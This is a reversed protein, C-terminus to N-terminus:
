SLNHDQFHQERPECCQSVEAKQKEAAKKVCGSPWRWQVLCNAAAQCSLHRPQCRNGAGTGVLLWRLLQPCFTCDTVSKDKIVSYLIFRYVGNLSVCPIYRVITATLILDIGEFVDLLFRGPSMAVPALQVTLRQQFKPFRGGGRECELAAPDSAAEARPPPRRFGEGRPLDGPPPSITVDLFGREAAASRPCCRAPTATTGAYGDGSHAGRLARREGMDEPAGEHVGAEVRGHLDQVAAQQPHVVAARHSARPRPATRAGPRGPATLLRSGTRDLRPPPPVEPFPVSDPPLRLPRPRLLTGALLGLRSRPATHEWLVQLPATSPQDGNEKLRVPSNTMRQTLVTLTTTSLQRTGGTCLPRKRRTM